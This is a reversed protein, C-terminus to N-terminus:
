RNDPAEPATDTAQADQDEEGAIPWKLYDTPKEDLRWAFRNLYLDDPKVLFLPTVDGAVNLYFKVEVPDNNELFVELHNCFTHNLGILTSDEEQPYFIVESNGEVRMWTLENNNFKGYIQKGQIQNYYDDVVYSVIFGNGYVRMSDAQQNKMWIVTTDGSLQNKDSWLVPDGLLTLVSDLRDYDLSDAIGSLGTLTFFCNHYARLRKVNSLTDNISYLTDAWLTLTDGDGIQVLIANDFVWSEQTSRRFFAQEGLITTTTDLSQLLINCHATGWDLSDQYFITDAQLYYSTDQAWPNGFLLLEDVESIYYGGETYLLQGDESTIHTPEVFITRKVVTEYELSDTLMVYGPSTAVVDTKFTAKRQPSFYYGTQSRLENEEEVLRGGEPYYGYARNRDYFLRDTYLITEGDTLQVNDYFEAMRTKGDYLLNNSTITVRGGSDNPMLIRVRSIAEIQNELPYFYASDCSMYTSDQRFRVNGLLKRVTNSTDGRIETLRDANLIEIQQTGQQASLGIPTICLGVMGLLGVLRWVGNMPQLSRHKGRHVSEQCDNNSSRLCKALKTYGFHCGHGEDKGLCSM